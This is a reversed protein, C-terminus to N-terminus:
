VFHEVSMRRPVLRFIEFVQAQKIAWGNMRVVCKQCLLACVQCHSALRSRIGQNRKIYAATNIAICVIWAWLKIRASLQRRHAVQHDFILLRLCMELSTPLSRVKNMSSRRDKGCMFQFPMPYQVAQIDDDEDREAIEMM